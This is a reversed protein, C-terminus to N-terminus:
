NQKKKAQKSGQKNAKKKKIIFKVSVKTGMLDGVYAPTVAATAGFVSMNVCTCTVFLALATASPDAMVMHVSLPIGQLSFSFFFVNLYQSFRSLQQEGRVKCGFLSRWDEM